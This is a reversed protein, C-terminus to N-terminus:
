QSISTILSSYGCIGQGGACDGALIQAYERGKKRPIFCVLSQIEAAQASSGIGEGRCLSLSDAVKGEQMMMGVKGVPENAYVAVM